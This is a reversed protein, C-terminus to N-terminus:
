FNRYSCFKTKEVRSGEAIIESYNIMNNILETQHRLNKEIKELASYRKEESLHSARLIRSWGAIANLPTRLEHSIVSIFEDKARNAFEASKRAEQEKVLLKRKQNESEYLEDAFKQIKSRAAAEWYTLGFM